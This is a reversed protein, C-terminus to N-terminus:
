RPDMEVPKYASKIKTGLVWALRSPMVRDVMLCFLIAMVTAMAAFIVNTFDPELLGPIRLAILQCLVIPFKHLLLIPMTRRGIYVLLRNKLYQEWSSFLMALAAVQGMASIYFLFWNRYADAVYDVIGNEANVFALVFGLVFLAISFAGVAVTRPLRLSGGTLIRAGMGLLFFPSMAVATEFGWPLPAGNTVDGYLWASFALLVGSFFLYALRSSKTDVKCLIKNLAFALIYECFLAPLFWLPLNFDMLNCKGNGYLLGVLCRILDNNMGERGIASIAVGGIVSYVFVSFLGVCLYPVMLSVMRKKVFAGFTEKPFFLVGSLFFFMPVHFSYVWIKPLGMEVTHGFVILIMALGRLLDVWVVRNM